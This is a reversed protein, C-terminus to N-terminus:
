SARTFSVSPNKHVSQHEPSVSHHPRAFNISARTFIVSPVQQHPHRSTFNSLTHFPTQQHVPITDSTPTSTLHHHPTFIISIIYPIRIPPPPIILLYLIQYFFTSQEASQSHHPVIISSFKPRSIFQLITQHM